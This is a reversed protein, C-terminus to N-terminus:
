WGGQPLRCWWRHKQVLETEVRRLPENPSTM